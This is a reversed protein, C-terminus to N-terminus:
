PHITEYATQGNGAHLIPAAERLAAHISKEAQLIAHYGGNATIDKVKM